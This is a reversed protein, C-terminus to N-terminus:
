GGPLMNGPAGVPTGDLIAYWSGGPTNAMLDYDIRLIRWQGCANKIDSQITMIGGYTLAKRFETRVQVGYETFSPYDRMGTQASILLADGQRNGNRPWIALKNDQIVGEIGAAQIVERIQKLPSGWHYPDNLISKVGADELSLGAAQALPKLINQVPTPGEFSSPTQHMTAANGGGIAIVHFPCDPMAKMDAWAQQIKGDFVTSMGNIDDGASVTIGYNYNPHILTGYTSLQNIHSLSLGRLEISATAGLSVGGAFQIRAATRLAYKGRANFTVSEGQGSFTVDIYRRAYTM